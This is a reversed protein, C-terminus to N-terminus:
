SMHYLPDPACVQTGLEDLFAGDIEEFVLAEVETKSFSTYKDVDASAQAEVSKTLADMIDDHDELYMVYTAMNGIRTKGMLISLHWRAEWIYVINRRYSPIYKPDIPDVGLYFETAAAISIEEKNGPLLAAFIAPAYSDPVGQLQRQLVPTLVYSRFDSDHHRFAELEDGFADLMQLAYSQRRLAEHAADHMAHKVEHIFQDVLRAYPVPILRTAWHM